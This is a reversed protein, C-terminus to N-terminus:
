VFAGDLKHLHTRGVFLGGLRADPSESGMIRGHVRVQAVELGLSALAILKPAWSAGLDVFPMAQVDEGDFVRVAIRLLFPAKITVGTELWRESVLCRGIAMKM